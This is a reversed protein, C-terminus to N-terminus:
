ALLSPPLVVRAAAIVRDAAGYYVDLEGGPRLEAASPFVVNSTLGSREYDTEPELIPLPTRYLIRSPREADLIAVGMSYQLQSGVKSVGHYTLLWGSTIRVPPAGSGVKIAEWPAQSALVREHEGVSTLNAVDALM